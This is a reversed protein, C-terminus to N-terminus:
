AGERYKQADSHLKAIGQLLERKMQQLNEIEALMKQHDVYTGRAKTFFGVLTQAIESLRLQIGGLGRSTPGVGRITELDASVANLQALIEDVEKWSETPGAAGFQLKVPTKMMTESAALQAGLVDVEAKHGAQTEKIQSRLVEIEAELSQIKEASGKDNGERLNRMEEIMQAKEDQWKKVFAETREKIQTM